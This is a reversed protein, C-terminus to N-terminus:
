RFIDKVHDFIGKKKQEDTITPNKPGTTGM